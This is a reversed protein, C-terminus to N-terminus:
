GRMEQGREGQGHGGMKISRALSSIADWVTSRSPVPAPPPSPFVTGFEGADDLNSATEALHSDAVGTLAPEAPRPAWLCPRDSSRFPELERALEGCSALRAAPHKALMKLCVAALRPDLDPVYRRPTPITRKLIQGRVEDATAGQFPTRKCLLEFLLVGLAYQDSHPGIQDSLGAVQEPSMYFPTGMRTGARTASPNGLRALGFDILKVQDGLALVHAPKLDCHVVGRSHAQHLAGALDVVVSVADEPPMWKNLKRAKALISELDRGNVFEAALFRPHADLRSDHYAVINPHRLTALGRAEAAFREILGPDFTVHDGPIKLAVEAQNVADLAQYVAGFSGGGLRRRILFRDAWTEGPELPRPPEAPPQPHARAAALAFAAARAAAKYEARSTARPGVPDPVGKYKIIKSCGPCALKGSKGRPIEIKRGCAPNPCNIVVPM